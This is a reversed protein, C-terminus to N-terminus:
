GTKGLNNSGSAREVCDIFCKQSDSKFGLITPLFITMWTAPPAPPKTSLKRAGRGQTAPDRHRGYDTRTRAAQQETTDGSKRIACDSFGVRLSGLM